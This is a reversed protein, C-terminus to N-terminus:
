DIYTVGAKEARGRYVDNLYVMESTARSGRISPLGVWFVPVGRSKLVGLMEDVRKSYLEGWKESRFDHVVTGATASEPAIINPQDQDQAPEQAPTPPAEADVPKAPAAPPTPAAAQQQGTQAPQVQASQAPAAPLPAAPGGHISLPRRPVARVGAADACAHRADGGGSRCPRAACPGDM